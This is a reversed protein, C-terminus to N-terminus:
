GCLVDGFLEARVHDEVDLVMVVERTLLAVNHVALLALHDHMALACRGGTGTHEPDDGARHRRGAIDHAALPECSDSCEAECPASRTILRVM